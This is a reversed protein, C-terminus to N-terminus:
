PYGPALVIDLNDDLVLASGFTKPLSLKMVGKVEFHYCEYLYILYLHSRDCIVGYNCELVSM